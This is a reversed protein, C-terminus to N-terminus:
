YGGREIGRYGGALLNFRLTFPTTEGPTTNGVNTVKLLGSPAIFIPTSTPLNTAPGATANLNQLGIHYNQMHFQLAQPDYPPTENIAQLNQADDPDLQALIDEYPLNSQAAIPDPSAQSAEMSLEYQVAMSLYQASDNGFFGYVFDNATTRDAVETYEWGTTQLSTTGDFRVCNPLLNAVASSAHEYDFYHKFDNWKASKIMAREEKTAELFAEKGLEWMKRVPYVNPAAQIQFKTVIGAAAPTPYEVSVSVPYLGGQRYSRRNILSLCQGLDVFKTDGSNWQGEPVQVIFSTQTASASSGFM